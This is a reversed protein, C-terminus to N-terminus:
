DRAAADPYAKRDELGRAPGARSTPPYRELASWFEKRARVSFRETNPHHSRYSGLLDVAGTGSGGSYEGDRNGNATSAPGDEGTDRPADNKLDEPLEHAIGKHCDICTAGAQHGERHKRQARSTQASLDWAGPDHCQRCYMSDNEQYRALVERALEATRAEFEEPTDIGGVRYAWVDSFGTSAKAALMKWWPEHPLHCDVCEVRIGTANTHHSTGQYEAYFEEYVHCSVCYDTSGTREVMTATGASLALAIMGGTVLGGIAFIVHKRGLLRALRGSRSPDRPEESM